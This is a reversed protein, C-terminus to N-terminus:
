EDGISSVGRGPHRRRRVCDDPVVDAACGPRGPPHRHQPLAVRGGRPPAHRLHGAGRGAAGWRGGRRTQPGSREFRRRRSLDCESATRTGGGPPCAASTSTSGNQPLASWPRRVNAALQDTGAWLRPSNPGFKALMSGSAISHPWLKGSFSSAVNGWVQGIDVLTLRIQCFCRSRALKPVIRASNTSSRGSDIWNQQGAKSLIRTIESITAM